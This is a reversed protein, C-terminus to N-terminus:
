PGGGDAAHHVQRLGLPGLLVMFEGHGVELSRNVALSDSGAYRKSLNMLSVTAM